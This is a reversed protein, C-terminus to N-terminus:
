EIIRVVDHVPCGDEPVFGYTEDFGCGFDCSEPERVPAGCCVLFQRRCSKCIRTGDGAGYGDTEGCYPCRHVTEDEGVVLTEFPMIWAALSILKVALWARFRFKRLGVVKVELTVNHMEKGIDLRAM